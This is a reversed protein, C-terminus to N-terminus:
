RSAGRVSALRRRLWWGGVESAVALAVVRWLTALWPDAATSIRHTEVGDPGTVQLTTPRARALELRFGRRGGAGLRLTRRRVQGELHYLGHTGLDVAEVTTTLLGGAGGELTM